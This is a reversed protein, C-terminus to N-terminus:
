CATAAGITASKQKSAGTSDVCWMQNAGAAQLPVEAAWASASHNCTAVSTSAAPVNNIGYSTLNSAKAAALVLAGVGQAGDVTGNTCASTYTEKNATRTNYLIEGQRVANTLNSKVGADGGKDRANTLAALVVAALAGIIAIVVLLEILTFGSKLM